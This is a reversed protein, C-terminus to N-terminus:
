IHDISYYTVKYGEFHKEISIIVYGKIYIDLPNSNEPYYKIM